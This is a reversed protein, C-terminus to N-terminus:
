FDLDEGQALSAICLGTYGRNLDIPTAQERTNNPEGFACGAAVSPASGAKSASDPPGSPTPAASKSKDGEPATTITCGAMFAAGLVIAHLTPFRESNKTYNM